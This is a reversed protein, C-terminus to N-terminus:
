NRPPPPPGCDLLIVAWYGQPNCINLFEQSAMWEINKYQAKDGTPPYNNDLIGIWGKGNNAQPDCHPLSVMHSIRSGNYRGSPSKGYTIAPFRGTRCALALIELDKSNEIQIYDPEPLGREKCIQKIKAATKSPYSGGPYRTMWDRFGILVPVNQWKASHEISTFVCLGAGDSGGKNRLHFEGPLDINIEDGDPSQNGGVSAADVLVLPVLAFLFAALLKFQLAM